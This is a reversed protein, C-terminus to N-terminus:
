FALKNTHQLCIQPCILLNGKLTAYIAPILERRLGVPSVGSAIVDCSAVATVLADNLLHTSPQQPSVNTPACESNSVAHHSLCRRRKGYSAPSLSGQHKRRKKSHVPPPQELALPPSTAALETLKELPAIFNSMPISEDVDDPSFLPLSVRRGIRVVDSWPFPHNSSPGPADSESSRPADQQLVDMQSLLLSQRRLVDTTAAAADSALPRQSDAPELCSLRSCLVSQREPSRMLSQSVCRMHYSELERRM